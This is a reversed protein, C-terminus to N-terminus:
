ALRLRREIIQALLGYLTFSASDDHEIKFQVTRGQIKPPLSFGYSLASTDGWTTGDGWTIDPDGWTPIEGLLAVDKHYVARIGDVYTSVTLTGGLAEAELHVKRVMKEAALTPGTFRKTWVYANIAKGNDTTGTDQKDVYGDYSGSYLENDDGPGTWSCLASVSLGYRTWTRTKFDFVFIKDNTGSGDESVALFYRNKNIAACADSVNAADLSAQIKGRSLNELRQGDWSIVGESSLWILRGQHKVLTGPAICGVGPFMVDYTWTTPDGGGTYLAKVVNNHFVLVMPGFSALQTIFDGEAAAQVVYNNVPWDEEDGLESYYIMHPNSPTRAGFIRNYHAVVFQMGDPPDTKTGNVDKIVEVTTGDYRLLPDAEQAMFLYDRWTAFDYHKSGTTQTHIISGAGTNEDVTQITSALVAILQKTGNSKYYRHLNYVEEAALATSTLRSFGPRKKVAGTEDFVVNECDPTENDKIHLPSGSTNLGGEFSPTIIFKRRAM